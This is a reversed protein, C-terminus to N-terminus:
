HFQEFISEIRETNAAFREDRVELLNVKLVTFKVIVQVVINILFVCCVIRSKTVYKPVSFWLRIYRETNVCKRVDLLKTVIRVFPVLINM